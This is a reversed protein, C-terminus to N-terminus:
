KLSIEYLIESPHPSHRRKGRDGIKVDAKKSPFYLDFESYNDLISSHHEYINYVLIASESPEIAPLNHDIPDGPPHTSVVQLSLADSRM